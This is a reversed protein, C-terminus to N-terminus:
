IIEIQCASMAKLANQHSEVTVGACLSSNVCIKAEPLSAKLLMANSIVCIDTCVGVLEIQLKSQVKSYCKRLYNALEVSGFTPKDFILTFSHANPLGQMERGPFSQGDYIYIEGLADEIQENIRWGQSYRLCHEVPLKTGEQTTLYDKEHTDRTAIILKNEAQYEKIRQIVGPIIKIGEENRLAGHLFDNQMDIVILIKM